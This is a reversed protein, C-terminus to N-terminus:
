LCRPAIERQRCDEGLEVAALHQYEVIETVDSLVLGLGADEELENGLAVLALAEDGRAILRETLPVPDEGLRRHGYRRDIAQYVVRRDELEIGFAVAAARSKGV